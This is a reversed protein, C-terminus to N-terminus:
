FGLSHIFQASYVYNRVHLLVYFWFWKSLAASMVNSNIWMFYNLKDKCHKSAKEELGAEVKTKIWMYSMLYVFGM